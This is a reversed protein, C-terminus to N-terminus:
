LESGKTAEKQGAELKIEGALFFYAERPDVNSIHSKKKRKQWLGLFSVRRLRGRLGLHSNDLHVPVMDGEGRGVAGAPLWQCALTGPWEISAWLM